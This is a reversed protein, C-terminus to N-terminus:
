LTHDIRLLFSDQDTLRIGVFRKRVDDILHQREVVHRGVIDEIGVAVVFYATDRFPLMNVFVQPVKEDFAVRILFYKNEEHRALMRLDRPTCDRFHPRCPDRLNVVFNEVYMGESWFVWQVVLHLPLGCVPFRRWGFVEPHNREIRVNKALFNLGHAIRETVLLLRPCLVFAM